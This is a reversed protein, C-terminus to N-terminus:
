KVDLPRDWFELIDRMRQLTLRFIDEQVGQAWLVSKTRGGMVYKSLIGRLIDWDKLEASAIMRREDAHTRIHNRTYTYLYNRDMLPSAGAEKVFSMLTSDYVPISMAHESMEPGEYFGSVNQGRNKEFWPLYRLLPMVSQKYKKLLQERYEANTEM